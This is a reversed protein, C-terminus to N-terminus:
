GRELVRDCYYKSNVKVEPGVLVVNTKGMRSVGVSVLSRLTESQWFRSAAVSIDVNQMRTKNSSNARRKVASYVCDSQSNVPTAVTFTKMQSGFAEHEQRM